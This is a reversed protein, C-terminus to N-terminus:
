NKKRESWGTEFGMEQGKQTIECIFAEVRRKMKEHVAHKDDHSTRFMQLILKLVFFQGGCPFSM